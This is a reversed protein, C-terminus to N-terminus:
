LDLGTLTIITQAEDAFFCQDLLRQAAAAIRSRQQDLIMDSEPSHKAPVLKFMASSDLEILLPRQGARSEFTPRAVGDLRRGLEIRLNSM